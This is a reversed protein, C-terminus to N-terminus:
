TQPISKLFDMYKEIGEKVQDVEKDTECNNNIIEAIRIILNVLKMKDM